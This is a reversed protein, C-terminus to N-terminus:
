IQPPAPLKTRPEPRALRLVVFEINLFLLTDQQNWWLAECRTLGYDMLETLAVGGRTETRMAQHRVTEQRTGIGHRRSDLKDYATRSTGGRPTADRREM